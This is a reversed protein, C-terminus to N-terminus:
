DSLPPWDILESLQAPGLDILRSRAVPVYDSTDLALWDVARKSADVILLEDIQHAAYFPLKGWNDDGPSVIELVLAATTAWAGSSPEREFMGDAIRFEDAGGINVGAIIPHLGAARALPVLVEHLQPAILSVAAPIGPTFNLEDTPEPWGRVHLTGNWVEWRDGDGWRQWRRLM